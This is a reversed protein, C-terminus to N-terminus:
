NFPRFPLLFLDTEELWFLISVSLCKTCPSTQQYFTSCKKHVWLIIVLSVQHYGSTPLSKM